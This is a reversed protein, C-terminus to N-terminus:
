RSRVYGARAARQTRLRRRYAVAAGATLLSAGGLMMGAAAADRARYDSMALELTEENQQEENAGQTVAALQYQQEEEQSLGANLNINSIPQAPAPPPQPLAIAIPPKPPRPPDFIEPEPVPPIRKPVIPTSRCQVVATGEIGTTRERVSPTLRVRLDQGDQDARCRVPMAFTLWSQEKLNRIVNTTGKIPEVVVDDEDVVDVALTGPDTVGLLLGVIAPMLDPTSGTTDCVLPANALLDWPNRRGDGDCDVGNRPAYTGTGEAVAEMDARAAEPDGDGGVVVGVVKVDDVNLEEVAQDIGPYRGGQKFSSDSILVIVKFASPRFMARQEGRVSGVLGVTQAEPQDGGGGSQLTELAARVKPVTPDAECTIPLRRRYPSDELLGGGYDKFEGVGFCADKGLAQRLKLAINAMGVKLTNIMVQMSSTTDLLFYVDLPTADAPVRLTVPVDTLEGPKVTVREVYPDTDEDGVIFKIRTLNREPLLHRWDGFGIEGPRPPLFREGPYTDFRYFANGSRGLVIRGVGGTPMLVKDFPEVGKPTIDIWRQVYVDYGYTGRPGSVVYVGRGGGHTFATAKTPLTDAVLKDGVVRRTASGGQPTDVVITVVGRSVDITSIRSGADKVEWSPEDAYADALFAYKSGQWVWLGRGQASPQIGDAFSFGAPLPVQDWGLGFFALLPPDAQVRSVYLRRVPATPDPATPDPEGEVLLYVLDQAKTAPALAVPKGVLPANHSVETFTANALSDNELNVAIYVRPRYVGESIEDYSAAWLSRDNPAALHTFIDQDIGPTRDKQPIGSFMPAWTCGADASVKIVRGNTMYIRSRAIPPTTYDVIVSEGEGGGMKPANIRAWRDKRLQIQDKARCAALDDGSPAGSATYMPASMVLLAAAILPRILRHM